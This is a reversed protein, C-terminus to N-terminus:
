TEGRKKKQRWALFIVIMVLAIIIVILFYIAGTGTQFTALGTGAFYQQGSSPSGSELTVMDFGVENQFNASQMEIGSTVVVDNEYNTSTLTAGPAVTVENQYNASSMGLLLVTIIWTFKTDV